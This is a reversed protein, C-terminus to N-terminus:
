VTRSVLDESHRQKALGPPVDSFRQELLHSRFRVAFSELKDERRRIVRLIYNYGVVAPIAAGLGFITTILAEAIGPGVVYLNASGRVGMSLFSSMIGWVTGLLGLFPSVSATTALFILYSEWDSIISIIKSELIKDLISYNGIEGKEIDDYVSAALRAEPCDPLARSSRALESLSRERGYLELFKNSQRLQRKFYRAKEVMITWSVVSLVLLIILISKALVGANFVLDSFSEGLQLFVPIGLPGM